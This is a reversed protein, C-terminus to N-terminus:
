FRPPSDPMAPDSAVRDKVASAQPNQPMASKSRLVPGDKLPAIVLCLRRGDVGAQAGVHQADIIARDEAQRDGADGRQADIRETVPSM